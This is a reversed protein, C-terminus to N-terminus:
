MMVVPVSCRRLSSQRPRTTYLSLRSLIFMIYYGGPIGCDVMRLSRFFACFPAGESLKDFCSFSSARGKGKNLM